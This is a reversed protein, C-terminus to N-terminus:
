PKNKLAMIQRDISQGGYIPLIKIGRKYKCVNKLEESVQIALERTPCLALAQVGHINPDIMEIAPIGFACTKGTGTQAQGLIDRGEMIYPISKSQIPTAEEFGMESLARQVENSLNLDKFILNEM